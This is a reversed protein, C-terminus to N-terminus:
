CKLPGQYSSLLNLYTMNAPSSFQIAYGPKTFMRFCLSRGVSFYLTANKKANFIVSVVTVQGLGQNGSASTVQLLSSSNTQHVQLSQPCLPEM